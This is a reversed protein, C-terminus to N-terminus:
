TIKEGMDSPLVDFLMARQQRRIKRLKGVLMTAAWFFLFVETYPVWQGTALTSGEGGM